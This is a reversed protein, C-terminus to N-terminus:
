SFLANLMRQAEGALAKTEGDVDPDNYLEALVSLYDVVLRHWRELKVGRLSAMDKAFHLEDFSFKDLGTVMQKSVRRSEPIKAM